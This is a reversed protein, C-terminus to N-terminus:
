AKAGKSLSKYLSDIPSEESDADLPNTLSYYKKSVERYKDKKDYGWKRLTVLYGTNDLKEVSVEETIDGKRTTQSWKNDKNSSSSADELKLEKTNDM